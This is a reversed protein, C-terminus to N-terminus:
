GLGREQTTTRERCEGKHERPLTLAKSHQTLTLSILFLFLCIETVLYNTIRGPRLYSDSIALVTILPSKAMELLHLNTVFFEPLPVDDLKLNYRM